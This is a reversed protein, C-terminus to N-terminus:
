SMPAHLAANASAKVISTIQCRLQRPRLGAENLWLHHYLIAVEVIRLCALISDVAVEIIQILAVSADVCHEDPGSIGVHADIVAVLMVHDAGHRPADFADAFHDVVEM